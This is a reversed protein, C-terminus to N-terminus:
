GAPPEVMVKIANGGGQVEFAETIADLTFRHTILPKRDIAGSAMLDIAQVLEEPAYGLSGIIRPQKEILFTLDLTVDGEYAGFCIIRGGVPRLMDLALQLPPKGKMHKLYGACDFVVGVDAGITTPFGGVLRGCIDTITQVVDVEAANVADTAGLNVAMDLRPKSVDVAIIRKAPVGKARLTQIVGLGIIGVGFVVINEGEKIEALRVMQLADALPETTAAEEYSLGDPMAAIQYPNVPVPVLEAFAGGGTVGVARQGVSWGTVGEGVAVIHGAYEHGPIEQGAANVMLAGAERHANTRYLHLDSGCIGCAAVRLLVEGPGAV